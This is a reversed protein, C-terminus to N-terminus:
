LLSRQRDQSYASAITRRAADEESANWPRAGAILTAEAVERAIGHANLDCAACFLRDNWRPGESHRGALFAETSESVGEICVSNIEPPQQERHRPQLAELISTPVESLELDDLSKGTEWQYRSGSKHLSPPAIVIGGKGRFELNPHWPTQKAKTAVEPWRFFLHYRCPKGSGSLVKPAMPHSGLRDILIEHAEPGDVDVVFLDSTPGLVVAVGSDPWKTYWSWVEDETPLQEQYLKWKVRPKKATPAQPVISWGRRRYDIAAQLTPARSPFDTESRVVDPYHPSEDDDDNGDLTGEESDHEQQEIEIQREIWEMAERIFQEDCRRKGNLIKCVLSYDRGIGQALDKKKFNHRDLAESVRHPLPRDLRRPTTSHAPQFYDNWRREYDSKAYIRLHVGQLAHSSARMGAKSRLQDLSLWQLRGSSNKQLGVVVLELERALVTLDDLFETSESQGYSAKSLWGTEGAFLYGCGRRKGNGGFAVYETDRDLYDCEITNRCALDPVERRQVHEPATPSARRNRRRRTTERVIAQLLRHQKATFQGTRSPLGLKAPLYLSMLRGTKGIRWLNPGESRRSGVPFDYTRLGPSDGEDALTELAGLLGRGSNILFHRHGRVDHWPCEDGCLDARRRLLTTHTLLATATGWSPAGNEASAVHLRALVKLLSSLERRWHNPWCEVMRPGWVAEALDADAPTVVSQKETLIRQHIAWLLREARPGAQIASSRRQLQRLQEQQDACRISETANRWEVLGRVRSEPDFIRNSGPWTAAFCHGGVQKVSWALGQDDFYVDFGTMLHSLQGIIGIQEVRQVDALVFSKCNM